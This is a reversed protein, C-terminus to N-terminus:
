ARQERTAWNIQADPPRLYIPEIENPRVWEERLAKAHALEVLAGPSPHVPAAIECRYGELIEDRYRHAGDGVLLAEQSRALLDAVLEDVPGVTPTAVQQVGGPVQRYMAWSVESKRADIVPVVVRDTHRCPFALLDLSSIGIMPIRLAQAMAKAASIGVRMGTFMGPGIDVAICGLEDVDIDANRLVFEIAPTLIEAHRRGRTVEFTAIVGEHGGIAVGVQETASEIGLILM